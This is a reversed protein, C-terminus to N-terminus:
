RHNVGQNQDVDFSSLNVLSQLVSHGLPGFQVASKRLDSSNGECEVGCFGWPRPDVRSVDFDPCFVHVTLGVVLQGGLGTQGTPLLSVGGQGLSIDEHVMLTSGAKGASEDIMEFRDLLFMRRMTRYVERM